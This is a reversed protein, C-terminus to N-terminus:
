QVSGHISATASATLTGCATSSFALSIGTSFVEPPGSGYNIGTAVGASAPICDQLNGPANGSTTAGNAPVTASNFVMLFGAATPTVYAGYFNGGSVKCVVGSAAPGVNCPTIGVAADASPAVASFNGGTDGVATIQENIQVNSTPAPSCAVAMIKIPLTTVTPSPLVNITSAVVNAISDIMFFTRDPRFYIIHKHPNLDMPQTNNGAAASMNQIVNRVGSAYMVAFMQGTPQIEFGVADTLPAACTPTGPSTGMGLFLYAGTPAVTSMNVGHQVFLWAPNIPRYPVLSELVSFGGPTTGTGLTTLGPTSSAVVGGGSAVPAKWHTLTDLGADFTDVFLSHPELGVNLEGLPSSGGIPLPNTPGVPVCSGNGPSGPDVCIKSPQQALAPACSLALFVLAVLPAIRM